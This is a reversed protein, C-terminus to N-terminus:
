YFHTALQLCYTQFILMYGNEKWFILKVQLSLSLKHNVSSICLTTLDLVYFLFFFM